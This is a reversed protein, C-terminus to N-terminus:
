QVPLLPIAVQVLLMVLIALGLMALVIQATMAMAERWFRELNPMRVAKYTVAIGFSLPLLLLYWWEHFLNLPNIFPTWALTMMMM